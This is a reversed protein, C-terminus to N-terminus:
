AEWIRFRCVWGGTRQDYRIPDDTLGFFARLDNSLTERRKQQLRGATKSRWTFTGSGKAFEQLLDWQKTPKSSRRDVMGMQTYNYTGGTGKASIRATHGDIFAISIDEWATGNPTPFHEVVSVEAADDTPGAMRSSLLSALPPPAALRRDGTAPMLRDLGLCDGGVQRLLQRVEPGCAHDLPALLVSPGPYTALLHAAVRALNAPEAFRSFYVAIREPSSSTSDFGIQLTSSWSPLPRVNPEITFAAAIATGLKVLNVEHILVDSRNLTQPACRAPQCGCVSVLDNTGHMIVRAAAGCSGDASTCPYSDALVNTPRLFDELLPYDSGAISSWETLTARLSPIQALSQWFGQHPGSVTM